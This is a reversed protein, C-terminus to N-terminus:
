KKDPKGLRCVYFVPKKCSVKVSDGKKFRLRNKRATKKTYTDDGSKLKGDTIIWEEDEGATGIIHTGPLIIGTTQMQGKTNVARVSQVNNDCFSKHKIENTRETTTKAM